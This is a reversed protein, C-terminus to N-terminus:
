LMFSWRFVSFIIPFIIKSIRVYYLVTTWGEMTICQFVTLMAFGINDFSIIGFKPGEWFNETCKAIEAPCKYGSESFVTLTYVCPTPEEEGEPIFIEDTFLVFCYYENGLLWIGLKSSNTLFLLLETTRILDKRLM